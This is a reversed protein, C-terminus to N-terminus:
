TKMSIHKISGTFKLIFSFFDTLFLFIVIPKFKIPFSSLASYPLPLLFM